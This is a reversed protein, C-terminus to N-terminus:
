GVKISVKMNAVMQGHRLEMVKRITKSGNEKMDQGMMTITFELDM